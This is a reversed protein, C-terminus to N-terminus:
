DSRSRGAASWGGFVGFAGCLLGAHNHRARSTGNCGWPGAGWAGLSHHTWVMWDMKHWLMCIATCVHCGCCWCCTPPRPGDRGCMWPVRERGMRENCQDGPEWNCGWPGASGVRGWCACWAASFGRRLGWKRSLERTFSCSGWGSSYNGCQQFPVCTSRNHKLPVCTSRIHISCRCCFLHPCRGPCCVRGHEFRSTAPCEVAM